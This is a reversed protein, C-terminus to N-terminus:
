ERTSIRDAMARSRDILASAERTDLESDFSVGMVGGSQWRVLAGRCLTGCDLVVATGVPPTAACDLKAGGPSLDVIQVALREGDVQLFAPLAVPVRPYVRRDAYADRDQPSAFSSAMMDRKDAPGLV